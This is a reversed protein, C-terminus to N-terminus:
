RDGFCVFCGVGFCACLGAGLDFGGDPRIVLLGFGIALACLCAGLGGAVAGGEAGAM